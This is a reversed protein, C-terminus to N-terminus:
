PTKEPNEKLWEIFRDLSWNNAFLRRSRLEVRRATIWAIDPDNFTGTPGELILLNADGKLGLLMRRNKLAVVEIGRFGKNRWLSVKM